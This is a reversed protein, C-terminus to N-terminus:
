LCFVINGIYCKYYIFYLVICILLKEFFVEFKLSFFYVIILFFLKIGYGFDRLMEINNCIGM